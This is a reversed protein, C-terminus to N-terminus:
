DHYDFKFKLHEQLVSVLMANNHYYTAVSVRTFITMKHLKQRKLKKNISIKIGPMFNTQHVKIM